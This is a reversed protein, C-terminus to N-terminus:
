FRRHAHSDKQLCADTETSQKVADRYQKAVTAGLDQELIEAYRATAIPHLPYYRLCTIVEAETDTTNLTEITLLQSWLRYQRPESRLWGECLTRAAVPDNEKLRNLVRCCLEEILAPTKRLRERVNFGGVFKAATDFDGKDLLANVYYLAYAFTGDRLFFALMKDPIRSRM